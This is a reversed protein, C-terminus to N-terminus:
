SLSSLWRELFTRMAAFALARHSIRAKVEPSLEAFTANYGAPIFVPDFGFGNDGRPSTAIVGECKAQTVKLLRPEGKMQSEQSQWGAFAMCCVFSASRDKESHLSLDRLLREIRDADSAHDGAFRASRVGPMGGLANVELGSDDALSCVGTQKAYGLAKAGANEEYTEGLEDVPLSSPFENLSRLKIPLSRLANQLERV